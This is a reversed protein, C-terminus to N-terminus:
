KLRCLTDISFASNGALACAPNDGDRRKRFRHVSRIRVRAAGPTFHGQLM